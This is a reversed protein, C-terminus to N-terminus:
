RWDPIVKDHVLRKRYCKINIYVPILKPSANSGPVRTSFGGYGLLYATKEFRIDYLEM